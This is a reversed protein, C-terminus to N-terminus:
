GRGEAADAEEPGAVLPLAADARREALSGDYLLVGDIGIEHLALALRYPRQGCM